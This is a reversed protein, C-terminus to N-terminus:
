RTPQQFLSTIFLRQVNKGIIVSIAVHLRVGFCDRNESILEGGSRVREYLIFELFDFGGELEFTRDSLIDAPLRENGGGSVALAHADDDGHGEERLPRTITEDRVVQGLDEVLDTDGTCASLEEDVTDQLDPVQAPGHERRQHDVTQTAAEEEQKRSTQHGQEVRCLRNAEGLISLMLGSCSSMSDNCEDEEEISCVVNRERGEDDRVRDFDQWVVETGFPEVDEVKDNREGEDKILVDVRDCKVGQSPLVVYTASLRCGHFWVLM